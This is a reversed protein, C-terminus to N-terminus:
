QQEWRLAQTMASARSDGPVLSLRFFQGFADLPANTTWVTKPVSAPVRGVTVWEQLDFSAQLDVKSSPTQFELGHIHNNTLILRDIV